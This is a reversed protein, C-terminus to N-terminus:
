DRYFLSPLWTLSQVEENFWQSTQLEIGNVVITTEDRIYALVDNDRDYDFDIAQSISASKWGYFEVYWTAVACRGHDDNTCALTLFSSNNKWVVRSIQYLDYFQERNGDEDLFWISIPYGDVCSYPALSCIEFESSAADTDFSILLRDDPSIVGDPIIEGSILDIHHNEDGESYNLYRGQQSFFNPRLMAGSSMLIQQSQSAPTFADWLMVGQEDAFALLRGDPSWAAIRHFISCDSAVLDVSNVFDVTFWEQVLRPYGLTYISLQCNNWVAITDSTTSFVAAQGELRTEWTLCITNDEGIIAVNLRDPSIIVDGQRSCRLADSFGFASMPHQRLHFTEEDVLLPTGWDVPLIFQESSTTILLPSKLPYPYSSDPLSLQENSETAILAVFESESVQQGSDREAFDEFIQEGNQIGGELFVEVTSEDSPFAHLYHNFLTSIVSYSGNENRHLFAYFSDSPRLASALGLCDGGSSRGALIYETFVPDLRDFLIFEPGPGGALYSEVQLIANQGADDSEIARAKVVYDSRSLLGKITLPAGGSCAYVSRTDLAFVFSLVIVSIVFSRVLM